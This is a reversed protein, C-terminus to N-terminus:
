GMVYDKYKTPMRRTRIPRTPPVADPVVPPSTTTPPASIPETHAVPKPVVEPVTVDINPPLVPPNADATQSPISTATDPLAGDDVVKRMDDPIKRLFRRNRLTTRRSGDVLVRYKRNPLAEVIKGTHHWKRPSNGHQNQIAVAEGTELPNLTSTPPLRNCAHEFRKGMAKERLDAMDIWEHRFKVPDPLHDRISRGFLLEAPSVGVDPPPTNRHLLLSKAVNETDLSGSESINATLLRKMYKVAAEARGNSQPYHASSLRKSVGWRQLFSKVETSEFPPGGDSSLEVPVGFTIFLRRFIDCITKAKADEHTAAVETWGSYRDAYILYKKGAMNFIDTVVQQFPYEPQSPQSLPERHNTPAIENCRRCQDRRNQLQSSMGPWFFRQRANSKMSNVGQHGLHLQDILTRRVSKPILVRGQLFVLSDVTYLDTRMNWFESLAEPLMNRDEPFGERITRLLLQYQHDTASADKINSMKIASEPSDLSRCISAQLAIDIESDPLDHGVGVPVPIRSMFNAAVNKHGPIAIAHFKYMLTKERFDFIRPNKIDELNRDNFIPVLPKHDVVLTLNPCGLVFMRCSDLAFTIALAEGEIPAYRSEAPKTFRSGAYVVKWHGEGCLHDTNSPCSCHKQLLTFGIGTKSWDTTLCTPKNTVFTKVGDEIQRIIEQKASQFLTELADDWYFRGKHKLLDRFPSMVSAQAFAYSVQNVLGFFSRVGTINTPSPFNKIGELLKMCPGYGTPTIDFGAFEVTDDGFHFKEPNFIVGKEGCLKIYDIVHWFSQAIDPDWLLSDDVIRTVRPFGCTIDDFRKTYGDNSAHFGQPACLYRYRGWETIFTTADRSEPDLKVSHYGNWADIVTKKTHNPVVSVVHFPTPTHHTERRTSSNLSQLDVTRRPSGDKKPVTIMRSCWTTPTGTPVPEIIGLAVDNDLQDKVTAKWHHPVPIPKHVATPSDDNKFSISMPDGAMTPLKQHPCVNFASHKFYDLIWNELEKRYEETAPFPIKDPTPPCEKRLPCGCPATDTTTEAKPLSDESDLATLSTPAEEQKPFEPHVLNLKKLTTLSLYLGKVDPSIYIIECCSKDNLSIDTVLAGSITLGSSNVARSRHRTKLLTSTPCMM